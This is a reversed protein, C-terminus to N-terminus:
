VTSSVFCLCCMPLAVCVVFVVKMLAGGAVIVAVAVVLMVAVIAMVVLNLVQAATVVMTMTVVTAWVADLVITVLLAVASMRLTVADVVIFAVITAEMLLERHLTDL